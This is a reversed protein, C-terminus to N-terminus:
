ARSCRFTILYWDVQQPIAWGTTDFSNLRKQWEPLEAHQKAMAEKSYDPVGENMNPKVFERWEKFLTVLEDYSKYSKAPVTEPNSCSFLIGSIFLLLLLSRM